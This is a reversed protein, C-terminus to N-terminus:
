REHVVSGDVLTRIVEFADDLVVLDAPAGAKLVTDGVGVAAAPHHSAAALALEPEVGLDVLNRVSADMTTVSGALTGDALTARGDRITIPVGDVDWSTADTGAPAIADTVVCVRGPAAAVTMLLADDAVHVRDCILGVWLRGIAVAAPGPDRPAFRRHANWCHTLMTVGLDAAVHATAADADTHGMSVAIGAGTLRLVLDDAGPLEPALTVLSIPGAGLLRHLVLPDPDLLRRPDHAGAWRPSLFPGELHAGALWAGTAGQAEQVEQADALTRLASVYGEVTTSYCTPLFATTGTAALRETTGLLEDVTATRFDVGAFGNVQLDVFGPAAILGTGAGAGIGVEVVHGDEVRADGDVFFDGVLVADVGLKV